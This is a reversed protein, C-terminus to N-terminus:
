YGTKSLLDVADSVILFRQDLKRKKEFRKASESNGTLKATIWLIDLSEVYRSSINDLLDNSKIYHGKQRFAMVAFYTNIGNVRPNENTYSIIDDLLKDALSKNGSKAHCVAELFDQMRCDPNYPKGTGLKEPYEKSLELFRIAESYDNILMSEMALRINARRYLDHGQWAGEFPLVTMNNLQELCDKYNGTNYLCVAKNMELSIDNQIGKPIQSADLAKEYQGTNNYYTILAHFPRWNSEEVSCAKILHKEANEPILSALSLYLPSYNVDTKIDSMVDLANQVRNKSWYILGLLYKAKWDEPKNKIAWEFVGITETRFPFAYDPKMQSAIEYYESSKEPSLDKYLYALWYKNVPNSHSNDAELTAFADETLGLDYYLLAMELYTEQPLETRILSKFSNLDNENKSSLYKELRPFHNIPDIESLKDLVVEAENNRGLKRFAVASVQYARINYKNFDLARQTYEITRSLDGEIFFIEAMQTYANSRFEMSRAAWGFAEKADVYNGLKRSILAYIYNAGADYMLVKVAQEALTIGKKFEARRAYIEAARVLARVHKPEEKLSALYKELAIDYNRQKEFFEGALYLGEPSNEEPQSYTFPKSIDNVEPDSTYKLNGPINITLIGDTNELTLDKKYVSAPSLNLNERHIEAGNFKIIIDETINELSFFKVSVEKSSFEVNLVGSPSAQSIGGVDKVPFFLERWNDGTYPPFFEHDSQSMLRGAQPESYQGKTDTLLNVWIEGQRSLSWNWIKKGPVDDYYAWHGFGFDSNHWYGGFFNEYEGYVFLSHNSGFDYNKYMSLDHGAKDVPWTDPTFNHGHPVSANGPYFYELDEGVEVANNMWSYYSQNFPTPNYWLTNTQFYAKDSPLNVEVTWKTRSTLDYTSLYCSVSGDDKEKLLYDVPTAVAPTHGIVGFNYEIGGSTWPGRMAIQRFKIVDNLYLFEKGTSKEIAGYIKGGVEPLIQLKIYDNELTVVTWEFDSPKDTFTNYEFYPYIRADKILIPVQSPGNFLYSKITKKEEYIRSTQSNSDRFSIFLSFLTIFTLIIRHM